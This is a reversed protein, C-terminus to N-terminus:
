CVISYFKGKEEFAINLKKKIEEEDGNKRQIIYRTKM